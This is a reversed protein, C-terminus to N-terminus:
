KARQLLPVIIRRGTSKRTKKKACMGRILHVNTLHSNKQKIDIINKRRGKYQDMEKNGQEM